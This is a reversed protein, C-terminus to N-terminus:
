SMAYSSSGSKIIIWILHDLHSSGSKIVIYILHRDLQSSSGFEIIQILHDLHSSGSKIIIQISYHDLLSSGTTMIIYITHHLSLLHSSYEFVFFVQLSLLHSSSEFVFFVQISFFIQIHRSSGTSTSFFVLASFQASLIGEQNLPLTSTYTVKSHIRRHIKHM